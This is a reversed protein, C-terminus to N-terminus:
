QKSSMRASLMQYALRATVASSMECARTVLRGLVCVDAIGPVTGTLQIGATEALQRLRRTAAHRDMRTRSTLAGPRRRPRLDPLVRAAVSLRQSITSPKFRRIEQIWRIYLELHPRQAALPDLDREAYWALYCRLDSETHERSSGTFRGLYDAVAQPLRDTLLAPPETFDM